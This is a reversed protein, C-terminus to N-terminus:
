GRGPRGGAPGAPVGSGDFAGASAGNAEALGPSVVCVGDEAAPGPPVARRRPMLPDDAPDAM